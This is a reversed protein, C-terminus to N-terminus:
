FFSELSSEEASTYDKLSYMQSIYDNRVCKNYKTLKHFKAGRNMVEMGLDTMKAVIIKTDDLRDWTEGNSLCILWNKPRMM